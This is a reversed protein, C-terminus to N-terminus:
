MKPRKFCFSRQVGGVPEWRQAGLSNGAETANEAERGASVAAVDVCVVEWKTLTVAQQASAKPVVLQSSVGGVGCGLLFVGAIGMTRKSM